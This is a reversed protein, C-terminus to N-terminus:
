ELDSSSDTTVTVPSWDDVTAATAAVKAAELDAVTMVKDVIIDDATNSGSPQRCLESRLINDKLHASMNAMWVPDDRDIDDTHGDDHGDDDDDDDSQPVTDYAMDSDATTRMNLLKSKEQIDVRWPATEAQAARNVLKCNDCILYLDPGYAKSVRMRSCTDVHCRSHCRKCWGFIKSDKQQRARKLCRTCLPAKNCIHCQVTGHRMSPDDVEEGRIRKLRVSALETRYHKSCYDSSCYVTAKRKVLRAVVENKELNSITRSENEGVVKDYDYTDFKSALENISTPMTTPVIAPECGTDALVCVLGKRKPMKKCISKKKPMTKSEPRTGTERYDTINMASNLATIRDDGENINLIYANWLGIVKQPTDDPWGGVPPGTPEQRCTYGGDGNGEAEIENDLSSTFLTEGVWDFFEQTLDPDKSMEKIFQNYEHLHQATSLVQEYRKVFPTAESGDGDVVSTPSVDVVSTGTQITDVDSSGDDVVDTESPVLIVERQSSHTSSLSVRRGRKRSVQAKRRLEQAFTEPLSTPTVIKQQVQKVLVFNADRMERPVTRPNKAIDSALQHQQTVAQQKTMSQNWEEIKDAHRATIDEDYEHSSESCDSLAKRPKIGNINAATVYCDQCLTAMLDQRFLGKVTFLQMSYCRACLNRMSHYDHKPATDGPDISEASGDDDEIGLERKAAVEAAYNRDEIFNAEIKWPAIGVQSEAVAATEKAAEEKRRRKAPRNHVGRNRKKHPVLVKVPQPELFQIGRSGSSSSGPPALGLIDAAKKAEIKKQAKRLKRNATHRKRYVVTHRSTKRMRRKIRRYRARIMGCTHPIETNSRFRKWAKEVDDVGHIAERTRRKEAEKKVIEIRNVAARQWRRANHRLNGYSMGTYPIGEEECQKMVSEIRQHYNYLKLEVHTKIAAKRMEHLAAAKAQKTGMGLPVEFVKAKMKLLTDKQTVSFWKNARSCMSDSSTTRDGHAKALWSSLIVSGPLVRRQTPNNRVRDMVDIRAATDDINIGLSKFYNTTWLCRRAFHDRRDRQWSNAAYGEADTEVDLIQKSAEVKQFQLTAAAIEAATGCRVKDPHTRRAATRYAAILDKQVLRRAEELTLHGIGLIEYPNDSQSLATTVERVGAMADVPSVVAALACLAIFPRYVFWAAQRTRNHLILTEREHVVTFSGNMAEHIAKRKIKGKTHGDATMDRTDTWILAHIVGRLLKDQLWLLHVLFNKEAPNKLNQCNLASLINKADTVVVLDFSLGGEDAYKKADTLSLPGHAIEHMTIGIVILQDATGIVGHTESTFTSRVVVKTTGCVTDLLHCLVKKGIAQGIRFINAGRVSRGTVNGEEEDEERRFGTDSHGELKRQCQMKHYETGIEHKQTWKVIANLRRVHLYTPKQLWRQLAIVFVKIDDRTMLGYALAMVLSLFKKATIPDAELKDPKGLMEPGDILKLAKLYEHQDMRYGTPLRTYRVGCCTFNYMTVELESDGFFAKLCAIFEKLVEEPAGAKIDDVHKGAIFDLNGRQHRVILQKDFTTPRAGFKMNTCQTLKMDWLRPADVCGTGAKLNHLVETTPDFDEFGKFQRIVRASKADLEFNVNREPEGTMAALEKYTIGKLFAKRVDIAAMPWGRVVAESVVLRQSLRSTTGSYTTLNEADRDKFGRQTMRM